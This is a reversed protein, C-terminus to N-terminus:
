RYGFLFRVPAHSSAPPRDTVSGVRIRPAAGDALRGYPDRSRGVRILQQAAEGRSRDQADVSDTGRQTRHVM